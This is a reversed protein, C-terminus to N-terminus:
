VQLPLCCPTLLRRRLMAPRRAPPKFIQPLCLPQPAMRLPRRVRPEWVRGGLCCRVRTKRTCAKRVVPPPPRLFLHHDAPHDRNYHARTANGPPCGHGGMALHSKSHAPTVPQSPYYCRIQPWGGCSAQSISLYLQLWKAELCNGLGGSTLRWPKLPRGGHAHALGSSQAQGYQSGGWHWRTQSSTRVTEERM